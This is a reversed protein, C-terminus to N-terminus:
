PQWDEPYESDMPAPASWDSEADQEHLDFTQPTVQPQTYGDQHQRIILYTGARRLEPHSNNYEDHTVTEIMWAAYQKHHLRIQRLNLGQHRGFPMEYTDDPLLPAFTSDELKKSVKGTSSSSEDKNILRLRDYRSGCDPCFWWATKQSSRAKINPHGVLECEAATATWLNNKANPLIDSHPLELGVLHNSRVRFPGLFEGSPATPQKQPRSVKELMEEEKRRAEPSMLSIARNHWEAAKLFYAVRTLVRKWDFLLREQSRRPAPTTVRRTAQSTTETTPRTSLERSRVTWM